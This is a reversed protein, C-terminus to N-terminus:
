LQYLQQTNALKGTLNRFGALFAADNDGGDVGAIDVRSDHSFCAKRM